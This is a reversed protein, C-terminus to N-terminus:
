GTIVMYKRRAPGIPECRPFRQGFPHASQPPPGTLPHFLSTVVTFWCSVLTVVALGVKQEDEGVVDAIARQRGIVAAEDVRGGSM